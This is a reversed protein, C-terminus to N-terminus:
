FILSTNWIDQSTLLSWKEKDQYNTIYSALIWNRKKKKKEATRNLQSNVFVFVHNEASIVPWDHDDPESHKNVM